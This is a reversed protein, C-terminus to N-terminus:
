KQFNISYSGTAPDKTAKFNDTSMGFKGLVTNALGKLKDPLPMIRERVARAVPARARAGMMEAKMKENREEIAAGVRAAASTTEASAHLVGAANYDAGATDAGEGARAGAAAM